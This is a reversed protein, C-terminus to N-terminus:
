PNTVPSECSTSLKNQNSVVSHWAFAGVLAVMQIVTFPWHVSYPAAVSGDAAWVGAEFLVSSNLYSTAAMVSAVVAWGRRYFIALALAWLWYWPNVVPSLLLLLVLALDAPPM